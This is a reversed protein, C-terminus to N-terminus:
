GESRRTASATRGIAESVEDLKAPGSFRAREIASLVGKQSMKGLIGSILRFAHNRSKVEKARVGHAKLFNQIDSTKPLVSRQDFDAAFQEIIMQNPGFDKSRAYEYSQPEESRQVSATKPSFLNGERDGAVRVISDEVGKRGWGAILTAILQDLIQEKNLKSSM